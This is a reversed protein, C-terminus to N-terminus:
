FYVSLKGTFRSTDYARTYELGVKAFILKFDVGLIGVTSSKTADASNGATFSNEFVTSSGSAKLEGSSSTYGLGLYPEVLPLPLSAFLTLGYQLNNYEFETSVTSVTEKFELDAKTVYVKAAVDFPLDLITRTPTWKGALSYTGFKFNDSGFKPILGIEGTFGLPLSLVGVLAGHYAQKAEASADSRQVIKNLEPTRTMGGVLGVEFGFLNGLPSAGTVTTHLFNASFEGVINELDGKNLSELKLDQAHAQFGIALVGSAAICARFVLSKLDRM